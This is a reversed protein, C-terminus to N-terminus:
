HQINDFLHTHNQIGVPVPGSLSVWGPGAAGDTYHLCRPVYLQEDV